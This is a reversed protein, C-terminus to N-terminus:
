RWHTGVMSPHFPQRCCDEADEVGTGILFADARNNDVSASLHEQKGADEIVLINTVSTEM